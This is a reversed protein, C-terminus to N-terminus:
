ELSNIDYLYYLQDNGKEDYVKLLKKIKNISEKLEGITNYKIHLYSFVNRANGWNQIEDGIYHVRAIAEVEEMKKIENEGIVSSIIGEKLHVPLICYHKYMLEKNQSKVDKEIGMANNFLCEMQNIGYFYNVPHYTLSGGFRFGMENFIFEGNNNFAEIWIPGNKINISKFMEVVKENLKLVYDDTNKSPFLQLAMVSSGNDSLKMSIKDSMGSFIFEGNNVTYHIIVADYPCFEEILVNNSEKLAKKYGEKLQELNDCKSFGISGGGDAPKVIVPYVVQSADEELPNITYEMNVRIGYKRCLEKFSKKDSLIKRQEVTCYTPISLRKALMAMKDINFGHCGTMVADVCNERSKKELEDLDATSIDWCEDALMKAPSQEKPLFDTVITYVNNAKAFNVMECSGIPKGGLILLKKM